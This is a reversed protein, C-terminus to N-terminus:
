AQFPSSCIRSTTATLGVFRGGGGVGPTKPLSHPIAHFCFLQTKSSPLLTQFLKFILFKYGTTLLSHHTALEPSPLM